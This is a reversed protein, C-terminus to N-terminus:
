FVGFQRLFDGGYELFAYVPKGSSKFDVIADRLEQVKGWGSDSLGGVEIIAGKIKPDKAGRELSEVVARLSPPSSDFLFGFDSAPQEPIDGSLDLALYADKDKGFVTGKAGGRLVLALAGVAAAGLALAAVGAVLIWATRRKM